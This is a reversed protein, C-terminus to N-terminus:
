YSHVEGLVGQKIWAVMVSVGPGLGHDPAPKVAMASWDIGGTSTKPLAAPGGSADAKAADATPKANATGLSPFLAAPGGSLKPTQQDGTKAEAAASSASTLASFLPTVGDNNWHGGKKLVADSNNLGPLNPAVWSVVGEDADGQHVVKEEVGAIACLNASLAVTPTEELDAFLDEDDEDDSM